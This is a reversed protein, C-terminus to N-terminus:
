RQHKQLNYHWKPHRSFTLLLMFSLSGQQSIIGYPGNNNVLPKSFNISEKIKGSAKRLIFPEEKAKQIPDNKHDIGSKMMKQHMYKTILSLPFLTLLVWTIKQLCFDLMTSTLKTPAETKSCLKITFTWHCQLFKLSQWLSKKLGHSWQEIRIFNTLRKSSKSGKLFFEIHKAWRSPSLLHSFNIKKVILLFCLFIFSDLFVHSM